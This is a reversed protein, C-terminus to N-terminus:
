RNFFLKLLPFIDLLKFNEVIKPISKAKKTVIVNISDTDYAGHEDFLKVTVTYVGKKPWESMKRSFEFAFHDDGHENFYGTSGRQADPPGQPHISSTGDGWDCEVLLLDKDEEMLWFHMSISNDVTYFYGLSGEEIIPATNDPEPVSFIINNNNEDSECIEDLSDIIYEFTHINDDPWELTAYIWYEDGQMMGNEFRWECVSIGDIKLEITFPPEDLAGNIKLWAYFTVEEGEILSPMYHWIRKFYFDSLVPNDKAKIVCGNMNIDGNNEKHDSYGVALFDGESNIILNRCIEMWSGEFDFYFSREWLLNGNIDTRILGFNPRSYDCSSFMNIVGGVIYGGDNTQKISYGKNYGSPEYTKTWQTNGQNDTKIICVHGDLMGTLALGGDYTIEIAWGNNYGNNGYSKNWQENGQEDTKLLLINDFGNGWFNGIIIYGGDPMKKVDYGNNRANPKTFIKEWLVDGNMSTKVLWLFVDDSNIKSGVLIYGNNDSSKIVKNVESYDYDDKKIKKCWELNGSNDISFIYPKEYITGPRYNGALIYGGGNIKEVISDCSECDCNDYIKESLINGDKDINIIRPHYSGIIIDGAIIYGNDTELIQKFYSTKGDDPIMKSWESGSNQSIIKKNKKIDNESGVKEIKSEIIKFNQNNISTNSLEKKEDVNKAISSLVTFNSIVLVTIILFASIRKKM